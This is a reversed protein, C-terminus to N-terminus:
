TITRWRPMQKYQNNLFLDYWIWVILNHQNFNRRPLDEAEDHKSCDKSTFKNHHLHVIIFFTACKVITGLTLTLLFLVGTIIVKVIKFGTTGYM